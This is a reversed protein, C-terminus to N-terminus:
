LHRQQFILLAGNPPDEWKGTSGFMDYTYVKETRTYGDLTSFKVSEIDEYDSVEARLGFGEPYDDKM